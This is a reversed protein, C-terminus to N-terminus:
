GSSSVVQGTYSSDITAFYVVDILAYATPNESTTILTFTVQEAATDTSNGDRALEGGREGAADSEFALLDFDTAPDPVPRYNNITVTVSHELQGDEDDAPVPATLKVLSTDCYYQATTDCTAPKSIASNRLLNFYNANLGTAQAGEWTATAEPGIEVTRAAAALASSPLAGGLAVTALVLTAIRTM